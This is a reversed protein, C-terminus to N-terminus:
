KNFENLNYIKFAIIQQSKKPTFPCKGDGKDKKCYRRKISLTEAFFDLEVGVDPRFWLEKSHWNTDMINTLTTSFTILYHNICM